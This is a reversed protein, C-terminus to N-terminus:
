MYLAKLTEPPFYSLQDKFFDEPRPYNNSEKSKESNWCDEEIYFNFNGDIVEIEKRTLLSLLLENERKMILEM